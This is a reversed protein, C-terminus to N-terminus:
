FAQGLSVYVAIPSDFMPNRNLPVGVDVRIPGFGTKYRLGLGAGYNIFRFDPIQEISVTGADFFPVLEVAGDFFGTGIRAELSFEVLSRGGTPEGFDNRPGVAQYGYGRVSNSGGAYLRRSPAVQYTEAGQITAARFRGAIITRDTVPQYYTADVQGRVYITESGLTRSVEPAVFASLRYGKRPDLLSDSADITARGSVSGILYTQRPRPIGGIVRNREDTYLVEAGLAWSFPKQFLLNSVREFSTALAVTRAEVADTKVNRAYTDINLLQDRRGFNNRRFSIGALQERTGAIGRVKVAGEPPFFNRHEWSAQVRFGEETGYGIAGAITRLKAKTLEVDMAVVGPEGDIPPSVERPTVEVSSVLGTVTIARRLDQQLSRQFTDGRDFRAITALHKGSLFKDDSSTVDGFVYKGNPRVALTLDGEDRAHDILLEPSDIEAFPYGAEGLETDLDFQEEVIKYSSILDGPRIEFAARLTEADPATALQGLDIEGYAYRTGPIISFRVVPRDEEGTEEGPLTGGISRTVQADYYGYSRLLTGLLEEDSRARASVLALSDKDGNLEEISSLAEFKALFEDRIPFLARETPLAIEIEDSIKEVDMDAYPDAVDEELEALEYEERPELPEIPPLDEEDPWAMPPPPFDSLPVDFVPATFGESDLQEEVAEDAAAESAQVAPSEEAWEDPSDVATDPILEELSPPADMDQASVAQPQGLMLAVALAGGLSTM